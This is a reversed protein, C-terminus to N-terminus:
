LNIVEQDESEKEEECNWKHDTHPDTYPDTHPDYDRSEEEEVMMVANNQQYVPIIQPVIPWVFLVPDVNMNVLNHFTPLDPWAGRVFVSRSHDLKIRKLPSAFEYMNTSFVDPEKIIDMQKRNMNLLGMTFILNNMTKITQYSYISISIM